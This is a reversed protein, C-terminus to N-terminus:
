FLLTDNNSNRKKRRQIYPMVENIKAVEINGDIHVGFDEEIVQDLLPMGGFM